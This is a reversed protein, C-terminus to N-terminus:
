PASRQTLFNEILRPHAHASLGRGHYFFGQTALLDVLSGGVPAIVVRSTPNGPWREAVIAAGGSYTGVIDSSNPTSLPSMMTDPSAPVLAEGVNFGKCFPHTTAAVAENTTVPTNGGTTSLGLVSLLSVGTGGAVPGSLNQHRSDIVLVRKGLDLWDKLKQLTGTVGYEWLAVNRPPSQNIDDLAFNGDGGLWIVKLRDLVFCSDDINTTMGQPYTPGFSGGSWSGWYSVTDYITKLRDHDVGPLHLIRGSLTQRQYGQLGGDLIGVSPQCAARFVRGCHEVDRHLADTQNARYRYLSTSAGYAAGGMLHEWNGWWQWGSGDCCACRVALRFRIGYTSQTDITPPCVDRESVVVRAAIGQGGTIGTSIALLDRDRVNGAFPTYINMGNFSNFNVDIDDWTVIRRNRVIGVALPRLSVTPNVPLVAPATVAVIGDLNRNYFQWGGSITSGTHIADISWILPRHRSMYSLEGTWGPYTTLDLSLSRDGEWEDITWVTHGCECDDHCKCDCNPPRGM